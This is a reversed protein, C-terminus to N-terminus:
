LNSPIFVPSVKDQEPLPQQMAVGVVWSSVASESGEGESQVSVEGCVLAGAKFM